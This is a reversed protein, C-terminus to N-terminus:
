FPAASNILATRVEPILLLLILIILEIFFVKWGFRNAEEPSWNRGPM